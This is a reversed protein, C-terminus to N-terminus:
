ARRRGRRRLMFAAGLSMAVLATLTPMALAMKGIFVVPVLLVRVLTALFPSQAVVDAIAPSLRYYTDVFATGVASDLLFTDRVSRLTDIEAAMPTGYAATAIFCPGGGGGGGDTSTDRGGGRTLLFALLLGLGLALPDLPPATDLTFFDDLTVAGVASDSSLFITADVTVGGGTFDPTTFELINENTGQGILLAADSTGIVNGSGGKVGDSETFEIRDVRALQGLPSYIAMTNADTMDVGGNRSTEGRSTTNRADELIAAIVEAAMPAGSRLSFGNLSYVRAMSIMDVTTSTDTLAPDVEGNLLTSQYETTGSTDEVLALTVYDFASPASWLTLGDRVDDPAIAGDGVAFTLTIPEVPIENGDVDLRVREGGAGVVVSALGGGVYSGGAVTPVSATAVNPEAPPTNASPPTNGVPPTNGAPPTNGKLEGLDIPAYFYLSLDNITANQRAGPLGAVLATDTIGARAIGFVLDGVNATTDAPIDLTVTESGGLAISRSIDSESADFWFGTLNEDARSTSDFRIRTFGDVLPDDGEIIISSDTVDPVLATLRETYSDDMGTDNSVPVIVLADGGDPDANYVQATTGTVDDGFRISVDNALNIGEVRASIGGFIWAQAPDISTITAGEGLIRRLEARTVFGNGDLDLQDFTAQDINMIKQSAGTMEEIDLQGDNPETDLNGFDDLLERAIDLLATPEVGDRFTYFRAGSVRRLQGASAHGLPYCEAVVVSVTKTTTSSTGPSLVTMSNRSVTTGSSADFDALDAASTLNYIDGATTYMFYVKYISSVAAVTTFASQGVELFEGTLTVSEGGAMSGTVPDISDLRFESPLIEEEVAVTRTVQTGANGSSDSADYTIVYVGSVSTSVTDGGVTVNIAGECADSATAGDDAFVEGFEVSQVADGNLTITPAGSDTVTLTRTVEIAAQSGSDTVNYTITYTGPTTTDVTDGGVVVSGSLDSGNSDSATFGEDSFTGQCEVTEDGGVLTISPPGPPIGGAVTLLDDRSTSQTIKGDADLAVVVITLNGQSAFAPTTVLMANGTAADYATIADGIAKSEELATAAAAVLTANTNGSITADADIVAQLAEALSIGDPAIYVAYARMAAELNMAASVPFYGLIDVITPTDVLLDAVDVGTIELGADFAAFMSLTFVTSTFGDTVGDDSLAVVPDSDVLTWEEAAAPDNQINILDDTFDIKTPFSYLQTNDGDSAALGSITIAVGDTGALDEVETNTTGDNAVISIEVYSAGATMDIADAAAPSADEVTGEWVGLSSAVTGDVSDLMLRPRSTVKVVLAATSGATVLGADILAQTNPTVLSHNEDIVHSLNNLDSEVQKGSTALNVAYVTTTGSTARWPIGAPLQAINDPLLNGNADAVPTIDMLLAVASATEYGNYAKTVLGVANLLAHVSLTQAGGTLLSSIAVDTIVGANVQDSFADGTWTGDGWPADGEEVDNIVVTFLDISTAASSTVSIPISVGSAGDPVLIAAAGSHANVVIDDPLVHASKFDLLKDLFTVTDFVGVDSATARTSQTDHGPVTGILFALVMMMSVLGALMLKKSTGM